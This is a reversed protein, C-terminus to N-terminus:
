GHGHAVALCIIKADPFNKKIARSAHVFTAGTTAVDDVLIITKDGFKVWARSPDHVSFAGDLNNIREEKTKTEVQTKTEKIKLLSNVLLPIRSLKGFERALLEAQNYRREHEKKFHIPIPIILFDEKKFKPYVGVGIAANQKQEATRLSAAIHHLPYFEKFKKFILKGLPKALERRQKYKLEWIANKLADKYEGVWLVREFRPNYIKKCSFCIKGTGNRQNCFICSGGYKFSEEACSHCIIEKEKKCGVCHRPALIDLILNSIKFM